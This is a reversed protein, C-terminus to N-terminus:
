TDGGQHLHLGGGTTGVIDVEVKVREFARQGEITDKLRALANLDEQIRGASETKLQQRALALEKYDVVGDNNQDISELLSEIETASLQVGIDTVGRHFEETTITGSGDKDFRTFLDVLRIKHHDIYNELVLMPPKKEESREYGGIAEDLVVLLDPRKGLEHEQETVKNWKKEAQQLATKCGEVDEDIKAEHQAVLADFKKEMLCCELIVACVQPADGRGLAHRYAKEMAELVPERDAERFAKPVVKRFAERAQEVPEMFALISVVDFDRPGGNDVFGAIAADVALQLDKPHSKRANMYATCAVAFSPGQAAQYVEKTAEVVQPLSYSPVRLEQKARLRAAQDAAGGNLIARAVADPTILKKEKESTPKPQFRSERKYTLQAAQFAQRGHSSNNALALAVARRASVAAEGGPVAFCDVRERLAHREGRLKKIDADLMDESAEMLCQQVIEAAMKEGATEASKIMHDLEDIPEQMQARSKQRSEAHKLAQAAQEHAKKAATYSESPACLEQVQNHLARSAPVLRMDLEKLHTKTSAMQLLARVGDGGIANLGIKFNTISTNNTLANALALAGDVNIRNNTVDVNKLSSNLKLAEAIAKAGVDGFGNWGIDLQVLVFNTRLANAIALAGNLRFHNWSLNLTKISPSAEIAPGLVRGSGEAFCNRSLDLFELSRLNTIIEAVFPAEKDGLGNDSLNLRRFANNQETLKALAKLGRQEIKNCSLDLDVIFTNEILMRCLAVVGAPGICNDSLLLQEVTCNMILAISLAEVGKAGLGLHPLSLQKSDLANIVHNSPVIGFKKCADCYVHAQTLVEYHNYENIDMETECYEELEEPIDQDVLVPSPPSPISIEEEVEEEEILGESDEQISAFQSTVSRDKLESEHSSTLQTGQKETDEQQENTAESQTEKEAGEPLDQSSSSSPLEQEPLAIEEEPEELTELPVANPQTPLQGVEDEIEESVLDNTPDSPPPPATPTEDPIEEGGEM